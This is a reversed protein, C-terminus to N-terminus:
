GSSRRRRDPEARAALCRQLPADMDDCACGDLGELACLLQRRDRHRRQQHMAAVVAFDAELMGFRQRLGAPEDFERRDVPEAM